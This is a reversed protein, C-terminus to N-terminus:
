RAKLSQRAKELRSIPAKFGASNIAATIGELQLLLEDGREGQGVRALLQGRKAFLDVWPLPEAESYTLLADAYRKAEEWDGAELAAEIAERYFWFYNHSVCGKELIAEAEALLATRTSNDDTLRARIGLVFPGLFTMGAERAISIAEDINSRAADYESNANDIRALLCFGQAIFNNADLRRALATSKEAEVRAADLEGQEISMFAVLQRGLMEARNQGVKEAMEAAERGDEEAESIENLYMRSWGVMSRNAVAVRGLGLEECLAVCNQFHECASRMRGALYSADGLGGLARAEWERSGAERAYKLALEHQELCEVVRGAPFYLNGRLHHIESLALPPGKDAAKEAKDLVELADFQRDSARLGEALGVWARSKAVDDTAATLAEEFATISNEVEGLGRLLDGRFCLIAHRMAPDAVALGRESLSLASENRYNRAEDEAAALYAEAAGPDNARDLHEACLTLDRSAYWDAARKHLDSRRDKLLSSYVGDRVLAHAFLFGTGEPRVLFHEVLARCDYEPEEILNRLADLAFRQGLISAAQLAHRDAAELIDMRGLIISQVSSPIESESAEEAGRLLQELFLPNGGAREVCTQAFRETAHFFDHAFSLAEEPRLPGLDVTTLPAGGTAARWATDIPDGEIRSTMLMLVRCDACTRALRALHSLTSNDAWHIDEVSVAMPTKAAAKRILSSVLEEKGATRTAEDMADYLSRLDTPQPLDLLDNLYVREEDDVLSGVVARSVGVSKAENDADSSIGLIGRVVSAIAGLGRGGGFDLVLGGYWEFGRETALRRYERLLRTKGIGAEGRVLFTQGVGHSLCTDLAGTFQAVEARRGVFPLQGNNEEDESIGTLRWVAVPEALGKIEIQGLSESEFRSTSANYVADSILTEGADARDQLRAALNVSDGIVTYERHSDSGMGSAVVTGSAIGIHATLPPQMKALAAHIDLATRIAREPDDSHAVPAGFVAMLGDGIHKDIMGGYTGVIEDVTQFYRNLLAHTEEPDIGESLATFGTLDGFLVTVQRREGEPEDKPPQPLPV